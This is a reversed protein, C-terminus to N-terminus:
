LQKCLGHGQPDYDAVIRRKKQKNQQNKLAQKNQKTKNIDESNLYM